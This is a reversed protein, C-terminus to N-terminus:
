PIRRNYEGVALAKGSIGAPIKQHRGIRCGGAANRGLCRRFLDYYEASDHLVTEPAAGVWSVHGSDADALWLFGPAGASVHRDGPGIKHNQM